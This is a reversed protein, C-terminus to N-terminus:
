DEGEVQEVHGKYIVLEVIGNHKRERVWLTATMLSGGRKQFRMRFVLIDVEVSDFAGLAYQSRVFSSLKWENLGDKEHKALWATALKQAVRVMVLAM